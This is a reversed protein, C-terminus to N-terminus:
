SIFNNKHLIMPLDGAGIFLLVVEDNQKRMLFQILDEFNDFYEAKNNIKRIEKTLELASMGDEPQERASYTRFFIPEEIGSFTKIFDNLLIKTRSYTHPQFITIVKKDKYIKQASRIAKSIETPHHAYDCVVDDFYPCCVKEFRTKVGLFTELGLKIFCDEIGLKKAVQYAFICNQTNVEECLRLKLDLIKKNNEYIGFMLRGNKDHRINKARLNNLSDIVYESQNKFKKFSRLQNQFTKFYDLHEKEINTVVSIYPKLYLFNDHYECAETVFFEKDGIHYNLGDDIKYGGLHLTPNYGACKLIQYIMATTTTKGHSGAVAIVKEYKKSIEGLIEGRTSIKKSNEKAFLFQVNNEKIASSFCIEDAQLIKEKNLSYDVEIGEKELIQTGSSEIEDSGGVQHGMNKLMVALASMSVGGIGLFYYKKM